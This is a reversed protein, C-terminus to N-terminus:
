IKDYNPIFLLAKGKVKSQIDTQWTLELLHHYGMASNYSMVYGKSLLEGSDDYKIDTTCGLGECYSLWQRLTVSVNHRAYDSLQIDVEMDSRALQSDIDKPLQYNVAARHHVVNRVFSQELERRNCGNLLEYDIPVVVNLIESNDRSWALQYFKNDQTTITFVDSSKVTLFSKWAGKIFKIKQILLDNKTLVFLRDLAAYEICDYVPSPHQQRIDASFIPLGIHEVMGNNDIRVAITTDSSLTINTTSNKPANSIQHEIGLAVAAQRLASTRYEKGSLGQPLLVLSFLILIQRIDKNHRLIRKIEM